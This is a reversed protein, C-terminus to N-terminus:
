PWILVRSRRTRVACGARASGDDISGDPAPTCGDDTSCDDALDDAHGWRRRDAGHDDSRFGADDDAHGWRWRGAGDDHRVHQPPGDHGDGVDVREVSSRARQQQQERCELRRPVGIAPM